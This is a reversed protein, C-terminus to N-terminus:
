RASSKRVRMPSACRMSLRFANTAQSMPAHAREVMKRMQSFHPAASSNSAPWASTSRASAALRSPKEMWRVMISALPIQEAQWAAHCMRRSQGRREILAADIRPFAIIASMEIDAEMKLARHNPKRMERVRQLHRVGESLCCACRKHREFCVDAKQFLRAGAGREAHM